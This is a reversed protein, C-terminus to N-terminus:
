SIIVSLEVQSKWGYMDREPKAVKTVISSFANVGTSSFPKRHYISYIVGAITSAENSSKEESFIDFFVNARDQCGNRAPYFDVSVRVNPYSFQTGQWELERIEASSSLLSTLATKSKSYAIVSAQVDNGTKGSM